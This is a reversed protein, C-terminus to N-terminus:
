KKLNDLPSVQAHIRRKDQETTSIYRKTIEIGSHGLLESVANIDAGNRWAELAFCRRLDHFSYQEGLNARTIVRRFCSIFGSFKLPKGDSSQWFSDNKDFNTLEAAYKRVIKRANSGLYATRPKGNKGRTITIVGHKVDVDAIKMDFCERRLIGTDLLIAIMARNRM